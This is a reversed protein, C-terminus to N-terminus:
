KKRFALHLLQAWSFYKVCYHCVPKHNKNDDLYLYKIVCICSNDSYICPNDCFIKKIRYKNYM